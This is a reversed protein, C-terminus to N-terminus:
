TSSPDPAPEGEWTVRVAHAHGGGTFTVSASGSVRPSPPHLTITVTDTDGPELTGSSPSLSLPDAATAMWHVTAGSGTLTVTCSLGTTGLDCGSPEVLLVPQPAPHVDSPSSRGAGPPTSQRQRGTSGTYVTRTPGPVPSRDDGGFAVVAIIAAGALALAGAAGIVAPAWNRSKKRSAVAPRAAGVPVPVHSAPLTPPLDAAATVGEALITQAQEGGPVTSHGLLRMLLVSASPRRAPDKELCEAVLDRLGDTLAGLEPPENVIRYALVGISDRGFPPTGNAAFALTAGWAFVDTAPTAEGGSVQEPAMYAPTGLTHGTLTAARDTMRAIGFDIVRPGDPGILVNPPKLDRHVVGAQHIAVLATATGIALRDLAGGEIPGREAVLAQLSPGPVYESVIYPQDGAIDADLVQATCFRAVQKAAAAERAFRDREGGAEALATRLLKVAVREADATEALYVVGYGGHGLRGILTYPGLRAPDEPQLPSIDPM